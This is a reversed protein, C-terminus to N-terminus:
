WKRGGFRKRLEDECNTPFATLIAKPVRKVLGTLLDHDLSSRQVHASVSERECPLPRLVAMLATALAFPRSRFMTLVSGWFGVTSCRLALLSPLTGAKRPSSPKARDSHM